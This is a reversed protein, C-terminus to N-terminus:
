SRLQKFQDLILQLASDVMNWYENNGVEQCWIDDSPRKKESQFTINMQKRRGKRRARVMLVVQERHQRWCRVEVALFRVWWVSHRVCVWERQKQDCASVGGNRSSLGARKNQRSESREVLMGSFPRWSGQTFGHQWSCCRWTVIGIM